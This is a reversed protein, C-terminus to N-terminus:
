GATRVKDVLEVLTKRATNADGVPRDFDLRAIASGRSLDIAEPDIGTLTWGDGTLGLLGTAYLTVSEAHDENMHQVIDAENAALEGHPGVDLVIQDATLWEIVGFGAVIHARQVTMRYLHFDGLALYTQADPHRRVYRDLPAFDDCREVPGLLTARLGTLPTDLGVTRVVARRSPGGGLKPYTRCARLDLSAAIRGARLCGDCAVRLAM